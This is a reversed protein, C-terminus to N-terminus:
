KKRSMSIKDNEEKIKLYLMLLDGLIFIIYGAITWQWKLVMMVVVMPMLTSIVAM